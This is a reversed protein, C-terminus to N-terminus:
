KVELREPIVIHSVDLTLGSGFQLQKADSIHQTKLDLAAMTKNYNDLVSQFAEDKLMTETMSKVDDQGLQNMVTQGAAAFKFKMRMRKVEVKFDELSQKAVGISTYLAGAFKKMDGLAKQEDSDDYGPDTRKQDVVMQAMSEIQAKITTYADESAKIRQGDALIKNECQEIPNARAEAKRLGLVTNDWKQALYPLAKFSAVGVLATLGIGLLGLSALFGAYILPLAIALIAVGAVAAGIKVITSKTDQEM